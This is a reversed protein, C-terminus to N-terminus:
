GAALPLTCLPLTVTFRAGGGPEDSAQVRGGHARAIAAVISLGLGAGGAADAERARSGDDQGRWFREFLEAPRDTPLGPGHDRVHLRVHAADHECTLELPTGAPTHVVANRILNALVQRLADNDGLVLADGDVDVSVPRTPDMAEADAAADELLAAVDVVTQEVARIEDLRALVLLDEVITGMRASEDEIRRLATAMRAPDSAGGMRVLEAYGRISVLPTRLEHAADSLFRRLREESAKTEAFAQELRALMNNLAVGLRGVETGPGAVEVRRDLEGAAIADATTAIRDLPRFELRVLVAGLAGLLLLVVAIVAAEQELLRRLARDAGTLPVAVVVLADTQAVRVRYRTDGRVAGTTFLQGARLTDPLRPPASTSSGDVTVEGEITRGDRARRQGYTGAPLDADGAFTGPGGPGPGKPDGRGDLGLKEDLARDVARQATATQDDVRRNEYSRQSLYTIGALVLMGGAALLVLTGILRTRLSRGTM